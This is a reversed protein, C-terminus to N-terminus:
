GHRSCNESWSFYILPAGSPIFLCESLQGITHSGTNKVLMDAVTGLRSSVREMFTRTHSHIMGLERESWGIIGHLDASADVSFRYYFPLDRFRRALDDAVGERVMVGLIGKIGEADPEALGHARQEGSGFSLVVSVSQEPGFINEAEEIAKKTPNNFSLSGGILEEKFYDSEISIPPLCEPDALTAAVADIISCDNQLGPARYTRLLRCTSLNSTPVTTVASDYM